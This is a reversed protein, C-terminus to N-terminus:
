LVVLRGRPRDGARDRAAGIRRAGTAAAVAAGLGPRHGLARLRARAGVVGGVGHPLREASWRRPVCKSVLSPRLRSTKSRTWGARKDDAGPAEPPSRPAQGRP